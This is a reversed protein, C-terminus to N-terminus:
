PRRVLSSTSPTLLAHQYRLPAPVHLLHPSIFVGPGGQSCGCLPGAPFLPQRSFHPVPTQSVLLFGPSHSTESALPLSHGLLLAPGVVDPLCPIARSIDELSSFTFSIQRSCLRPTAPTFAQPLSCCATAPLAPSFPLPHTSPLLPSSSLAREM